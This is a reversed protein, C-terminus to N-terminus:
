NHLFCEVLKNIDAIQNQEIWIVSDDANFWTMQRKAYRRTDRKMTRVAEEWSIQGEIFLVMHRYGISQMSKLDAHYGKELLGKVEDVFGADIMRDVRKNIGKYLVERTTKLGIKLTIFPNDSFNHQDRYTSIGEGTMEYVELARIIRYTDNPHIMDAAVPDCQALKEYLFGSGYLEAENRLHDRIVPDSVGPSFLGYELAKIYFGTGGVVISLVGQNHLDHIIKRSTTMYTEADYDEDPNAVNIMHHLVEAQEDQTPKATGIDMYTYIQMSDAGIIEGNFRKALEIGIATKGVGTPGCIVIITPKLKANNM